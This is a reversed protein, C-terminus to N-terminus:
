ILEGETGETPEILDEGSVKAGERSGQGKCGVIHCHM